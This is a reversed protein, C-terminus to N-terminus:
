KEKKSSVKKAPTKKKTTTAKAKSDTKKETTKKTTKNATKNTTKKAPEKEIKEEKEAKKEKEEKDAKESELRKREANKRDKEIGVNCCIICFAVVYVVMFIIIGTIYISLNIKPGCLVFSVMIFCYLLLLIGLRDDIKQKESAKKKREKKVDKVDRNTEKAIKNVKDKEKGIAMCCICFTTIYFTIFVVISAIYLPTDINNRFLVFVAMLLSFTIVLIELNKDIKEQEPSVKGKRKKRFSEIAAFILSIMFLLIFIPVITGFIVTPLFAGIITIIGFAILMISVINGLKKDSNKASKTNEFVKNFDAYSIGLVTLLVGILGVFIVEINAMNIDKSLAFFLSYIVIAMVPLSFKLIKYLVSNEKKNKTEVSDILVCIFMECIAILIPLEYVILLRYTTADTGFMTLFGMNESGNFNLRSQNAIGIIMPILCLIVGIFLELKKVKNKSKKM